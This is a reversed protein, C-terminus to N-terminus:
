HMYNTKSRRLHFGVSEKTKRWVELKSNIAIWVKEIIVIDDVFMMSNPIGKQMDVKMLYNLM